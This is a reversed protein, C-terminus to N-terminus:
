ECQSVRKHLNTPTCISCNCYEAEIAEPAEVDFTVAQCHCSGKYIM